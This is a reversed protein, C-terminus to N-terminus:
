KENDETVTFEGEIIDPSLPAPEDQAGHPSDSFSAQRTQFGRMLPPILTSLLTEVILLRGWRLMLVFGLADTFFGPVLLLAGGLLILLGHTMQAVPTEGRAQALQAEALVALGQRRMARAGWLATLVILIITWGSGLAGGIEIFLYIEIAPVVVLLLFLLM